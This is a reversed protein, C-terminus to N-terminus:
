SQGKSKKEVFGGLDISYFLIRCSFLFNFRCNKVILPGKVLTARGKQKCVLVVWVGESSWLPKEDNDCSRYRDRCSYKRNKQM